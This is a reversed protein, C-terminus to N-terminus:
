VRGPNFPSSLAVDAGTEAHVGWDLAWGAPLRQV